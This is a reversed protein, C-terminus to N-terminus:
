IMMSQRCAQDNILILIKRYNPKATKPFAKINDDIGSDNQTQNKGTIRTREDLNFMVRERM